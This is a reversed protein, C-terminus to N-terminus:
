LESNNRYSKIVQPAYNMLLLEVVQKRAQKIAEENVEHAKFSSKLSSFVESTISIQCPGNDDIFHQYISKFRKWNLRKDTKHLFLINEYAFHRKAIETLIRRFKKDKWAKEFDSVKEFVFDGEIHVAMSKRYSLQFESLFPFAVSFIMVFCSCATVVVLGDRRIPLVGTSIDAIILPLVSFFFLSNFSLIEDRTLLADSKLTWSIFALYCGFASFVLPWLYSLFFNKCLVFGLDSTGYGPATCLIAATGGIILSFALCIILIHYIWHIKSKQIKPLPTNMFSIGDSSGTANKGSSFERAGLVIDTYRKPMLLGNMLNPSGSFSLRPSAPASYDSVTRMPVQLATLESPDITFTKSPIVPTYSSPSTSPSSTISTRKGSFSPRTEAKTPIEESMVEELPKEEAPTPFMSIPPTAFESLLTTNYINSTDTRDRKLGFALGDQPYRGVFGHYPSFMVEWSTLIVDMRASIEYDGNLESLRIFLIIRNIIVVQLCILLVSFISRQLLDSHLYGNTEHTLAFIGSALAICFIICVQSLVLKLRRTKLSVCKRFTWLVLVLGAFVGVSLALTVSELTDAM